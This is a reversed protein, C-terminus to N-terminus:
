AHFQERARRGVAAGDRVQRFLPKKGADREQRPPPQDDAPALTKTLLCKVGADRPNCAVGAPSVEVRHPAELLEECDDKDFVCDCRASLQDFLMSVPM